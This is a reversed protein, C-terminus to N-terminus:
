GGCLTLVALHRHAVRNFMFAGPARARSGQEQRQAATPGPASGGQAATDCRAVRVDCAYEVCAGAVGRVLEICAFKLCNTPCQKCPRGHHIGNPHHIKHWLPGKEACCKVALRLSGCSCKTRSKSMLVNQVDPSALVRQYAVAQAAVCVVPRVCAYASSPTTYPLRPM